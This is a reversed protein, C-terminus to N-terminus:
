GRISATDAWQLDDVCLVLPAREGLNVALWHLGHQISTAPDGLSAAPASAAPAAAHEGLAATALSAAGSLLERRETESASMVRSEFLQRVVGYALSQELEGARAALVEMGAGAALEGAATLLETKGIGAPGEILLLSGRGEGAAETQAEIAALEDQRELLRGEARANPAKM